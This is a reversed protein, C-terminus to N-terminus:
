SYYENNYRESSQNTLYETMISELLPSEDCRNLNNHRDILRAMNASHIGILIYLGEKAPMAM